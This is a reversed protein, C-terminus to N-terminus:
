HSHMDDCYQNKTSGGHACGRYGSARSIYIANQIHAHRTQGPQRENMYPEAFCPKAVSPFFRNHDYSGALTCM